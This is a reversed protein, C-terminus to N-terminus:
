LEVHSDKVRTWTSCKRRISSKFARFLDQEDFEADPIAEQVADILARRFESALDEVIEVTKVRVM